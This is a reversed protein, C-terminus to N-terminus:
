LKNKFNQQNEKQQEILLDKFEQNQKILDMMINMTSTPKSEMDTDINSDDLKANGVACKARHRYLNQRCSYM